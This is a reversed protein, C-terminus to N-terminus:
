VVRPLARIAAQVVDLPVFVVLTTSYGGDKNTTHSERIKYTDVWQRINSRVAPVLQRVPLMVVMDPCDEFLLCWRDASPRTSGRFLPGPRNDTKLEVAMEPVTPDKWFRAAGASRRKVDIELITDSGTVVTYDSGALDSQKGTKQVCKPNTQFYRALIERDTEMYELSRLYDTTFSRVTVATM